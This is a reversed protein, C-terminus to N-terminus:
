LKEKCEGNDWKNLNIKENFHTGIQPGEVRDRDHNQGSEQPGKEGTILAEL